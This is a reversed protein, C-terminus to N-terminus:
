DLGLESWRGAVSIMLEKSVTNVPPFRTDKFRMTADIGMGRPPPVFDVFGVEAHERSERALEPGRVIDKGPVAAACVRWMVDNWDRVNCDEDVVIVWRFRLHEWVAAMIRGPEEADRISASVILMGNRGVEPFFVEKINDMGTAQVLRTQFTGSRLLFRPYDEILRCILGYTVPDKRRTICKIKIVFAAPNEGYFGTSEGHPGEAARAGPVVEGEVVM